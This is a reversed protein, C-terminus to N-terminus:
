FRLGYGNRLACRPFGMIGMGVPRHKM